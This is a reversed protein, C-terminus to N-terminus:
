IKSMHDQTHTSPVPPQAAAAPPLSRLASIRWVGQTKRQVIMLMIMVMLLLLLLLHVAIQKM